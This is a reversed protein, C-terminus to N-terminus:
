AADGKLACACLGFSVHAQHFPLPEKYLAKLRTYMGWHYQELHAELRTKDCVIAEELTKCTLLM